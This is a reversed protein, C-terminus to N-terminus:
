RIEEFLRRGQIFAAGSLWFILLAARQTRRKNSDQVFSFLQLAICYNGAKDILKYINIHAVFQLKLVTFSSRYLCVFFQIKKEM